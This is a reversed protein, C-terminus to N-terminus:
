LLDEVSKVHKEIAAEDTIIKCSSTGIDKIEAGLILSTSACRVPNSRANLAADALTGIPQTYSARPLVDNERLDAGAKTIGTIEGTYTMESAFVTYHAFAPGAFSVRMETILKRQAAMIGFTEYMEHISDTQCRTGDLEEITLIERMNTGVTSIAYIQDQKLEGNEAIYTRQFEKVDASVIKDIGRVITTLINKELTEISSMASGKGFASTRVFCSISPPDDIESSHVVFIKDDFVRLAYILTDMTMHKQIMQEADLNFMIIYTSLDSPAHIDQFKKMNAIYEIHNALLTSKPSGFTEGGFIYGSDKIFIEFSLTEIKSAIERVKDKDYQYEPMVHLLMSPNKMSKTKRAVMLEIGRLKASSKTGGIGSRLHADLMFQTYMENLSQSAIIGVALGPDALSLKYKIFVQKLILDLMSNSIKQMNLQKTCLHSRLVFLSPTVAVQHPFPIRTKKEQQFRNSFVYPLNKCFTTLMDIAEVPDLKFEAGENENVISLIINELDYPVVITDKMITPEMYQQEIRLARTRFNRRDESLQDFENELYMGVEENDDKYGFDSPDAKYRKEFEDDSLAIHGIKIYIINRMDIGQGGYLPQVLNKKHRMVRRYPDIVLSELNKTSERNQHGTTATSLQRNILGYRVEESMAMSEPVSLGESFPTPIFGWAVPDPSFCPFYSTGRWKDSSLRMGRITQQGVSSMVSMMNQKNGKGCGFVLHFFNNERTDIALLITKIHETLQLLEIQQQEFFERITMGIPPTIRGQRLDDYLIHSEQMVAATQQRLELRTKHPLIFDGIHITAGYYSIFTDALQQMSYIARNAVAPGHTNTIVHFLSGQKRQGVTAKDLVGSILKGNKIEVNIENMDYDIPYM